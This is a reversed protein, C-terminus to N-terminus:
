DVIINRNTDYSYILFANDKAAIFDLMEEQYFREELWDVQNFPTINVEVSLDAINFIYIEIEYVNNKSDTMYAIFNDFEDYGIFYITYVRRPLLYDEPAWDYYNYGKDLEANLLSQLISIKYEETSEFPLQVPFIDPLTLTYQGALWKHTLGSFAGNYYLANKCTSFYPEDPLALCVGFLKERRPTGHLPTVSTLEIYCQLLTEGEKRALYVNYSLTAGPSLMARIEQQVSGYEEQLYRLLDDNFFPYNILLQLAKDERSITPATTPTFDPFSSAKLISSATSDGTQCASLLLGVVLILTLCIAFRKNEKLIM